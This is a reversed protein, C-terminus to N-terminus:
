QGSSASSKEGAPSSVGTPQGGRFLKLVRSARSPDDGAYVEPDVIDGPDSLMLGINRYYSCGFNSSKLNNPNFDITGSWNNCYPVKLLYGSFRFVADNKSSSLNKSQKFLVRGPEIGKTHLVSMLGQRTVKDNNQLNVSLVGLGRLNYEDIFNDLILTKNRDAILGKDTINVKLRFEAKVAGMGSKELPTTINDNYSCGVIGCMFALVVFNLYRM